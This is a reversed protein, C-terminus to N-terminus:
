MKGRIQFLTVMVVKDIVKEFSEILRDLCKQPNERKIREDDETRHIRQGLVDRKVTDQAAAQRDAQDPAHVIQAIGTM